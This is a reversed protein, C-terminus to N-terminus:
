EENNEDIFEKVEDENSIPQLRLKNLNSILKSHNIFSILYSTLSMIIYSTAVLSFTLLLATLNYKSNERLQDLKEISKDFSDVITTYDYINKLYIVKNDIDLKEDNLELLYNAHSSKDEMNFIEEDIQESRKILRDIETNLNFANLRNDFINRLDIVYGRINSIHYVTNEGLYNYISTCYNYATAFEELGKVNAITYGLSLLEDYDIMYDEVEVKLNNIVEINETTMDVYQHDLLNDLDMSEALYDSLNFNFFKIRPMRTMSEATIFLCIILMSVFLAIKKKNFPRCALYLIMLGIFTVSLVVITKTTRIEFGCVSTLLYAIIVALVIAVVGPLSKQLVNWLFNGSVRSNNPQITLYASPIGIVFLELMLLQTTTSFPFTTDGTLKRFFGLVTLTVLALIFFTKVLFLMSIQQVNNIARRGENVVKPMSAFNSDLLVLQAVSRVADSGSAMAISCDAEKLALIDNVGDGTMAVTKKNDKLAKVIIQKQHPKVRGFVTCKTALDYVEDDSLGDLSQYNDANAVGVRRAVASVTIPNDGSIIKVEVGNERFYRITDEAEERIQDEIYIFALPKPSRINKAKKIDQNTTALCLIRYGENAKTALHAAYKDFGSKLVFEPAGIIYSAEECIVASYKRDSSFPITDLYKPNQDLGFYKELAKATANTEQLAGNILSIISNIDYKKKQLDEFNVVRMQGNTITGTKDLCLVDVRALMEVCYIDQVLTQHSSLRIVGLVLAGSTMMLLGAPIMGLLATCTSTIITYWNSSAYPFLNHLFGLYLKDYLFRGLPSTSDKFEIFNYGECIMLIGSIILFVTIFKIMKRLSNLIQSNPKKYAKADRAIKEIQNDSGIREVKCHCSGSVVFSGSYLVDGIKKQIPVSEGTLQSENVEVEGEVLISDTVIENGSNLIMIDDLVVQNNKIEVEKGNRVVKVTPTSILRLKSITHKSKLEQITGILLNIVVVIVFTYKLISTSVEIGKHVMYQQSSFLLFFIVVYIFNFLTCFNDFIIQFYSKGNKKVIKNTLGQEIRKNVEEDNLGTEFSPNLRNIPEFEKKKKM